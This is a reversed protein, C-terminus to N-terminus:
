KCGTFSSSRLRSLTEPAMDLCSAIHKLKVRNILGPKEVIFIRYRQLATRNRYLRKTRENNVIYQEALLRGLNAIEHNLSFLERFKGTDIRYFVSDELVEYSKLAPTNSIYTTVDGFPEFEYWLSLTKEGECCCTFGRVVGKKIIYMYPNRENEKIIVSGKKVKTITIVTSVLDKAQVSLVLFRDFYEFHSSMTKM